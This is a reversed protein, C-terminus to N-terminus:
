YAMPGMKTVLSLSTFANAVEIINSLKIGVYRESRMTNTTALSQKTHPKSCTMYVHVGLRIISKTTSVGSLFWVAVHPERRPWPGM